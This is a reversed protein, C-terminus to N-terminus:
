GWFICGWFVDMRNKRAFLVCICIFCHFGSWLLTGCVFESINKEYAILMSCDAHRIDVLLCWGEIAGCSGNHVSGSKGYRLGNIGLIGGPVRMKAIGM